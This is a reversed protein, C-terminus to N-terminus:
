TAVAVFREHFKEKMSLMCESWGRFHIWRSAVSRMRLVLAMGFLRVRPLCRGKESGRVFNEELDGRAEVGRVDKVQNLGALLRTNKGLGGEVYTERSVRDLRNHGAAIDEGEGEPTHHAVAQDDVVVLEFSTREKRMEDKLEGPCGQLHRRHEERGFQIVERLDIRGSLLDSLV